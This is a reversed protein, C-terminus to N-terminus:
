PTGPGSGSGPPQWTARKRKRWGSKTEAFPVQALFGELVVIVGNDVWTGLDGHEV